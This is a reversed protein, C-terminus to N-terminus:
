RFVPALTISSSMWGAGCCWRRQSPARRAAPDSADAILTAINPENVAVEDLQQVRRGTILVKADAAAFARAAALGIGAGGGTVIVVKDTLM